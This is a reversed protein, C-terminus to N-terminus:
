LGEARLRGRTHDEDRQTILEVPWHDELWMAEGGDLDLVARGRSRDDRYARAVLHNPTGTDVLVLEVYGAAVVEDLWESLRPYLEPWRWWATEAPPDEPRGSGRRSGLVSRVPGSWDRPWGSCAGPSSTPWAM